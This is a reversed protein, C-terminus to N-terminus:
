SAKQKILNNKELFWSDILFTQKAKIEPIYQSKITSKPIWIENGNNVTVLLAKETEGTIMGEMKKINDGLDMEEHIALRDEKSKNSTGIRGMNKSLFNNSGKTTDSVTSFKIKEKLIHRLLLDLIKTQAYNLMKPYDGVNFWIKNEGEWSLSIPTKENKFSHVTSWSKIKKKLVELMMVIEELGCKITKGEGASLKEWTANEKKKIFKMFISSESKSSSQVFM